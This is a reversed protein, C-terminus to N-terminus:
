PGPRPSAPVIRASRARAPGPGPGPGSAPQASSSAAPDTPTLMIRLTRDLHKTVTYRGTAGVEPADGTWELLSWYDEFRVVYERNYQYVHTVTGTVLSGVPFRDRILLWQEWTRGTPLCSPRRFRDDLPFLRVQGPTHQLVEFTTVTGVVPWDGPEYPLWLVDVFGEPEQGLDVFLGIVGPKLLRSVRGRIHKGVPFRARALDLDDPEVVRTVVAEM